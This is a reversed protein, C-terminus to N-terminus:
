VESEELFESLEQNSMMMVRDCAKEEACIRCYERGFIMVVEDETIRDECIDCMIIESRKRGCDRCYIDCGNCENITTIM